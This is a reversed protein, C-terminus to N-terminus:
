RRTRGVGTRTGTRARGGAVRDTARPSRELRAGVRVARTRERDDRRGLRLLAAGRDSTRSRGRRDHPRSLAAVDEDRDRDPGRDLLVRGPDADRRDLDAADPDPLRRRGGVPDRRRPRGVRDTRRPLPVVPRDDGALTWRPDDRRRRRRRRDPARPRLRGGSVDPRVRDPPARVRYRRDPRHLLPVRWPPDVAGPRTGRRGRLVVRGSPDHLQDVADHLHVRHRRSDRDRDDRAAPPRGRVAARRVM